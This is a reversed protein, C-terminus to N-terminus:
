FELAGAPIEPAKVDKATALKVFSPVNAVFAQAGKVATPTVEIIETFATLKDFPANKANQVIDKATKVGNVYKVGGTVYKALAQALKQKQDASLDGIEELLKQREETFSGLQDVTEGIDYDGSVSGDESISEVQARLYAAKDQRNLADDMDALALVLLRTGSYIDGLVKDSNDALEDWNVNSSSGGGGGMFSSLMGCGSLVVACLLVAVNKVNLM